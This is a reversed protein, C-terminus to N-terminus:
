KCKQQSLKKRLSRVKADAVGYSRPLETSAGAGGVRKGGSLFTTLIARRSSWLARFSSSNELM